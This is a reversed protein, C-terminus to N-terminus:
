WAKLTAVAFDYLATAALDTEVDVRLGCGDIADGSPSVFEGVTQHAVGGDLTRRMRQMTGKGYSTRGISKARGNEVLAAAFLEASSATNEDVILVVPADFSPDQLNRITRARGLTQTQTVVAGRPLLECACQVAARTDGGPNGRLDVM